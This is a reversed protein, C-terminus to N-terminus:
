LNEDFYPRFRQPKPSAIENAYFAHKAGMDGIRLSRIGLQVSLDDESMQMCIIHHFLNKLNTMREMVDRLLIGLNSSSMIVYVNYQPGYQLIYQLAQSATLNAPVAGGGAAPRPSAAAFATPTNSIKAPASLGALLSGQKAQAVAPAAPRSTFTPAAPAPPQEAPENRLEKLQYLTQANMIALMKRESSDAGNDREKVLAYLDFIEKALMKPNAITKYAANCSLYPTFYDKRDYISLAVEGNVLMPNLSQALTWYVANSCQVENGGFDEEDDMDMNLDIQGGHNGAILLNEGAEESLTCYVSRSLTKDEGLVFTANKQASAKRLMRQFINNEGSPFSQGNFILTEFDLAIGSAEESIKKLLKDQYDDLILASRGLVPTGSEMLLFEGPMTVQDCFEKNQFGAVETFIERKNKMVIRTTVNDKIASPVNAPNQTALIVNFGAARGERILKELYKTADYKTSEDEFLIQFEDIVVAIRPAKGGKEWLQELNAANYKNLMATHKEYLKYVGELIGCATEPDGEIAVVRAHPLKADAYRKFEVGKKLDILFMQLEDPRHLYCASTILGHLLNSKGSGTGGIILTHGAIEKDCFWSAVEGRATKGFPVKLRNYAAASFINEEPLIESLNVALDINATIERLGLCLKRVEEATTEMCRLTGTVKFGPHEFKVIEKIPTAVVGVETPHMAMFKINESVAPDKKLEKFCDVNGSIVVFVGCRAANKIIFSLNKLDQESNTSGPKIFTDLANILLMKRPIPLTSNVKNFDEIYEYEDGLLQVTRTICEDQYSRLFDKLSNPDRSANVTIKVPAKSNKKEGVLAKQFKTMFDGNFVPDVVAVEMEGATTNRMFQSLVTDFLLHLSEQQKEVDGGLFIAERRHFCIPLQFKIVDSKNPTYVADVCAIPFELCETNPRALLERVEAKVAKHEDRNGDNYYASAPDDIISLLREEEECSLALPLSKLAAFYQAEYHRMNNLWQSKKDKWYGLARRNGSQIQEEYVGLIYDGMDATLNRLTILNQLKQMRSGFEAYFNEMEKLHKASDEASIRFPEAYSTSKIKEVTRQFDGYSTGLEAAPINPNLLMKKLIKFSEEIEAPVTTAPLSRKVRSLTNKNQEFWKVFEKVYQLFDANAKEINKQTNIEVKALFTQNKAHIPSSKYDAEYFFPLLELHMKYKEFESIM